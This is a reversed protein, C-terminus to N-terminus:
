KLFVLLNGLDAAPDSFSLADFDILWIKGNEIHAQGLHFDGHITGIQTRDLQQEIKKATDVIFNIKSKLEPLALYLFPYRPHCRLLHDDVGFIEDSTPPTKHLKAIARALQRMYEPKPSTKLLVKIPLGPVEEQFLVCLQSDFFLPEPISIHDAANRHFGNKWLSQMTAFVGEGRNAKYVKGIVHWQLPQRSPKHMGEVIYRVVCRQNRRRIVEVQVDHIAVEDGLNRRALESLTPFIKEPELVTDLTYLKDHIVEVDAAPKM